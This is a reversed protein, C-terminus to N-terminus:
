FLFEVEHIRQSFLTTQYVPVLVILSFNINTYKHVNTKFLNKFTTQQKSQNSKIDETRLSGAIIIPFLLLLNSQYLIFLYYPLEISAFFIDAAICFFTIGIARLKM